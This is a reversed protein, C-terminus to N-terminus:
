DVYVYRPKPSPNIAKHNLREEPKGTNDLFVADGTRTTLKVIGYHPDDLIFLGTGSITVAVTNDAENKLKEDRHWGLRGLPCYRLVSITSATDGTDKSTKEFFELMDPISEEIDEYCELTPLGANFQSGELHLTM